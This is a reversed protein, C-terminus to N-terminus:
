TVVVVLITLNMLSVPQCSTPTVTPYVRVAQLETKFGGPGSHGLALCFNTVLDPPLRGMMCAEPVTDSRCHLPQVQCSALGTTVRDGTV